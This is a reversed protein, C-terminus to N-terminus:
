PLRSSRALRAFGAIIWFVGLIILGWTVVYPGGNPDNAAGAYSGATIAIGIFLLIFGMIIHTIARRRLYAGVPTLLDATITEYVPVLNGHRALRSFTKFDPQIM